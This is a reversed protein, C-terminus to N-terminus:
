KERWQSVIYYFKQLEKADMLMPVPYLPNAERSAHKAMTPIDAEQIEPLTEPIKLRKNLSRVADIFMLAGDKDQTNKDAIGIAKALRNLKSYVSSGYAELFIPLLVSNALGHPTNYQGGLSHAIAHIYGVYSKSFTAGALNAARLMDSRAQLDDGNKYANEISKFILCVADTAMQRTEKTTSRGIYAEVAHTLADIGTTATLMPPLTRTVEPDLVAMDPIFPFNNMTYKHHADIDTIVSTVTAESGTGATTPIAILPPTKRFVRLNGKLQSLTRKPYVIRAGVAKACDISSGGGFAIMAKCGESVYLARASEVNEVTPNPRTENYLVYKINNERLSKELPRTAGSEYLYSDTILLIPNYGSESLIPPLDCIKNILKPTRYPLFPLAMRFSAQYIRCFSKYIINM